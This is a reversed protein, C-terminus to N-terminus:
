KVQAIFDDRLKSALLYMLMSDKEEDTGSLKTMGSSVDNLMTVDQFSLHEYMSFKEKNGKYDFVLKNLKSLDEGGGAEGGGAVNFSMNSRLNDTLSGKEIRVNLMENRDFIKHDVSKNDVLQLYHFENKTFALFYGNRREVVVTGTVAATAAHKITDGFSQSKPCSTIGLIDDKIIDKIPKLKNEKAYADAIVAKSDTDLKQKAENYIAEYMPANEAMQKRLRATFFFVGGFIIAMMAFGILYAM